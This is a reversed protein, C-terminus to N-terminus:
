RELSCFTVCKYVAPAKLVTGSGWIQDQDAQISSLFPFPQTSNMKLAEKSDSWWQGTGVARWSDQRADQKLSATGFVCPPLMDRCVWTGLPCTNLGRQGWPRWCRSVTAHNTNMTRTHCTTQSSSCLFPVHSLGQWEGQSYKFVM